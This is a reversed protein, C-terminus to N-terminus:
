VKALRGKSDEVRISNYNPESRSWNKTKKEREKEQRNSRRSRKSVKMAASKGKCLYLDPCWVQWAECRGHISKHPCECKYPQNSNFGSAASSTDEAKSKGDKRPDTAEDKLLDLHTQTGQVEVLAKNVCFQFLISRLRYFNAHNHWPWASKTEPLNNYFFQKIVKIVITNETSEYFITGIQVGPRDPVFGAMGGQHVAMISQFLLRM